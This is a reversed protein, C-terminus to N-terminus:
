SYILKRYFWKCSCLVEIVAGADEPWSLDPDAEGEYGWKVHTTNESHESDNRACRNMFVLMGVSLGIWAIIKM